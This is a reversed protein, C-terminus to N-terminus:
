IKRLKIQNKLCFKIAKFGADIRKIADFIYEQGNYLMTITYKGNILRIDTNTGPLKKLVDEESYIFIVHGHELEHQRSGDNPYLNVLMQGNDVNDFTVDNIYLSADSTDLGLSALERMQKPFLITKVM